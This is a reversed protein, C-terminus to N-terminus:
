KSNEEFYPIANPPLGKPMNNKANDVKNYESDALLYKGLLDNEYDPWKQSLYNSLTTAAYHRKPHVFDRHCQRHFIMVSQVVWASYKYKRLRMILEENARSANRVADFATDWLLSLINFNSKNRRMIFTYEPLGCEKLIPNALSFYESYFKNLEDIKAKYFATWIEQPLIAVQDKYYMISRFTLLPVFVVGDTKQEAAKIMDEDWNPPLIIDDDMEAFWQEGEQPNVPIYNELIGLNRATLIMNDTGNLFKWEPYKNQWKEYVKKAEPHETKQKLIVVTYSGVTNKVISELLPEIIIPDGTTPIILNMRPFSM